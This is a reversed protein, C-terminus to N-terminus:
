SRLTNYARLPGGAQLYYIVYIYILFLLLLIICFVILFIILSFLLINLYICNYYYFLMFYILFLLLLLINTFYLYSVSKFNYIWCDTLLYCAHLHAKQNLWTVLDHAYLLGGSLFPTSPPYLLRKRMLSFCLPYVYWQYCCFHLHTKIWDCQM